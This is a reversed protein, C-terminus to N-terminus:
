ENHQTNVTIEKMQRWLFPPLPVPLLPYASIWSIRVLQFYPIYISLITQVWTKEKKGRKTKRSTGLLVTFAASRYIVTISRISHARGAISISIHSQLSAMRCFYFSWPCSERHNTHPFQVFFFPDNWGNEALFRWMLAHYLMWKMIRIMLFVIVYTCLSFQLGVSLTNLTSNVYIRVTVSCLYSVCVCWISVVSIM